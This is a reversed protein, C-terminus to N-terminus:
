QLSRGPNRMSQSRHEIGGPLDDIPRTRDVASDLVNITVKRAVISGDANTMGIVSVTKGVALDTATGIRSSEATLLVKYTTSATLMVTVTTSAPTTLVFSDSGISSITGTVPKQAEQDPSLNGACAREFFGRTLPGVSGTSSSAVGNLQQWRAMARATAPGYYGTPTVTFGANPHAALLEQVKRVDDGRSGIALNRTLVVCAEKGAQGPPM